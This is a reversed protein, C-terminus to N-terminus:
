EVWREREERGAEAERQAIEECWETLVEEPDAIDLEDWCYDKDATYYAGPTLDCDECECHHIITVEDKSVPDAYTVVNVCSYMSDSEAYEALQNRIEESDRPTRINGWESM